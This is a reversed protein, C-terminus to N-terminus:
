LVESLIDMHEYLAAMSDFTLSSVANLMGTYKKKEDIFYLLPTRPDELGVLYGIEFALGLGSPNDEELYAIMMNCKRIMQM